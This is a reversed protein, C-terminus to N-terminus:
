TFEAKLGKRYYFDLLCFMFFQQAQDIFLSKCKVCSITKGIQFRRLKSCTIIDNFFFFFFSLLNECKCASMETIKKNKQEAPAHSRIYSDLM